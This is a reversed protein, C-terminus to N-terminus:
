PICPHEYKVQEAVPKVAWTLFLSYKTKPVHPVFLFQGAKENFQLLNYTIDAM